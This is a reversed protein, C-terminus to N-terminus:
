PPLNERRRDKAWAAAGFRKVNGTILTSQLEFATAGIMADALRLGHSLAWADIWAM